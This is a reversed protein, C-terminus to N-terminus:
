YRDFYFTNNREDLRLVDHLNNLQPYMARLFPFNKDYFFSLLPNLHKKFLSLSAKEQALKKLLKGSLSLQQKELESFHPSILHYLKYKRLIELKLLATSEEGHEEQNNDRELLHRRLFLQEMGECRGKNAKLQELFLSYNIRDAASITTSTKVLAINRFQFFAEKVLYLQLPKLAGKVPLISIVDGRLQKLAEKIFSFYTGERSMALISIQQPFGNRRLFVELTEKQSAPVVLICEWHMYTQKLLSGLLEKLDRECHNLLPVILSFRLAKTETEERFFGPLFLGQEPEQIEGSLAEKQVLYLEEGELDMLVNQILPLM